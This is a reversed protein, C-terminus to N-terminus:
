GLTFNHGQGQLFLRFQRLLHLPLQQLVVVVGTAGVSQQFVPGHRVQLFQVEDDTVANQTRFEPLCDRDRDTDRDTQTHTCAHTCKHM